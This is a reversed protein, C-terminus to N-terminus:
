LNINIPTCGLAIIGNFSNNTCCVPQASCSNGPLGIVSLPSCTVGVQGTLPGVIVGLLALLGAIGPANAAQVSNCCQISGVNCQNVPPPPPPPTTPPTVPHDTRPVVASAAAFVSLALVTAVRPLMM